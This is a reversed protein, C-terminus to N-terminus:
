KSQNSLTNLLLEDAERLYFAMKRSIIEFFALARSPKERKLREFEKFTLVLVHTPVLATVTASRPQKDVLGFEGFHNGNEMMRLLRGKARIEVKGQIILYLESGLTGERFIVEGANLRQEHFYGLLELIDVYELSGFLEMKGLMSVELRANQVIDFHQETESPSSVVVVAINDPAGRMKAFDILQPVIDNIHVSIMLTQLEESSILNHLGDTCLLYIDGPLISFSLIDVLVRAQAGLARTLARSHPVRLANRIDMGNKLLVQLHNHDETLQYLQGDRLLYGRSDGVHAIIGQNGVFILTCLTSAVIQSSQLSIDNIISYVASSARQFAGEIVPHLYESNKERDNKLKLFLERHEFLEDQFADLAAQSALVGAPSGGMGDAVAYLHLEDQVLFSDENFSRQNGPDSQGFSFSAIYNEGYNCNMNDNTSM